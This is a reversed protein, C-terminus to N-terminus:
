CAMSRETWRLFWILVLTAALYLGAASVLVTVWQNAGAPTEGLAKAVTAPVLRPDSLPALRAICVKADSLEVLM